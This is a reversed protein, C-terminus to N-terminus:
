RLALVKFQPARKSRIKGFFNIHCTNQSDVLGCYRVGGIEFSGFKIQESENVVDDAVMGDALQSFDGLKIEAEVLVQFICAQFLQREKTVFYGVGNFAFGPVYCGEFFTRAVYVSSDSDQGSYIFVARGCYFSLYQSQYDLWTPM